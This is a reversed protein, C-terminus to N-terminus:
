LAPGFLARSLIDLVTIVAYVPLYVIVGIFPPFFAFGICLRLADDAQEVVGRRRLQLYRVLALFVGGLWVAGLLWFAYRGFASWFQFLEAHQRFGADFVEHERWNAFVFLVFAAAQLAGIM